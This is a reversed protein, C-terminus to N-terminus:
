GSILRLDIRTDLVSSSLLWPAGESVRPALMLRKYRLRYRGFQPTTVIADVDHVTPGPQALAREYCQAIWRGYAADQQDEVPAGRMDNAWKRGHTRYGGGTEALVLRGSGTDRQVIVYRGRTLQRVIRTLGEPSLERSFKDWHDILSQLAPYHALTAVDSPAAIFDGPRKLQHLNVLQILRHGMLTPERVLEFQWDDDHYYALLLREFNDRSLWNLATEIAAQTVIAPRVRIQLSAGFKDIAIFGLNKVLYASVGDRAGTSAFSKKIVNSSEPWLEGRDDILLLRM